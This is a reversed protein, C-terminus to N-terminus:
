PLIKITFNKEFQYYIRYKELLSFLQMFEDIDVDDKKLNEIRNSKKCFRFTSFREEIKQVVHRPMDYRRM